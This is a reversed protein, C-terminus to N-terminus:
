PHEKRRLLVAGLAGGLASFIVCGVLTFVLAMTMILVIGPQTKLFEMAQQAQPDSNRAAAQAVLDMLRERIQDWRRLVITFVSILVAFIGGGMAGSVMGLRAGIGPTISATPIRRRYFFVSLVGGILMGLGFLALPTMMLIAAVLGALATAPLAQSWEIRNPLSSRFYPISPPAALDSTLESPPLVEAVAVRIQPANCQPCFAM